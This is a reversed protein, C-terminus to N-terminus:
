FRMHNPKEDYHKAIIKRALQAETLGEKIIEEFFKKKVSGKLDVTVRALQSKLKEEPTPM